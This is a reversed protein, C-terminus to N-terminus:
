EGLTELAELTKGACNNWTLQEILAKRNREQEATVGSDLALEIGHAISETDSPDIMWATGSFFEGLGGTNSAAVPLGWTFAEAVTFGFGEHHAPHVLCYADAYLDALESDTIFGTFRIKEEIGLERPLVKYEDARFGDMGAIVLLPLDSRRQSLQAYARLLGDVNKRPEVTGVALIHKATGSPINNSSFHNIGLPTLFVKDQVEPFLTLLDEMTSKSIVTICDAKETITKIRAQWDETDKKTKMLPHLFPTLDYIMAIQKFVFSSPLLIGNTSHVWKVGSSLAMISPLCYDTLRRPRTYFRIREEIGHIAPPKGKQSSNMWLECQNGTQIWSSILEIGYRGIGTYRTHDFDINFALKM